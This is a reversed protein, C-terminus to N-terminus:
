PRDEAPKTVAEIVAATIDATEPYLLVSPYATAGSDDASLVFAFGRETALSAVVRKIDAVIRNRMRLEQSTLERQRISATERITRDLERMEEMKLRALEQKQERARENLAPDVAEARIKEFAESLTRMRSVQEEREEDYDSVYQELIARDSQTRPHAKIVREMEVVAIRAPEAMAPLVALGIPLMFVVLPLRTMISMRENRSKVAIRNIGLM